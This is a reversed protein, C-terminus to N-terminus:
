RRMFRPISLDDPIQLDTSASVPAEGGQEESRKELRSITVRSIDRGATCALDATHVTRRSLKAGSHGTLRSLPIYRGARCGTGDSPVPKQKKLYHKPSKQEHFLEGSWQMFDRTPPDTMYGLETLRYHPAKGRGEVGLCGPNTMVAFGYFQIERFARAITKKDLGTEEAARRVSLYIRGNNRDKFSYRSKLAMYLVRAYPSMARWAAAGMTDKLMPVFAGDIRGKDRRSRM